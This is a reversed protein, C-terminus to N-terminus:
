KRRNWQPTILVAPSLSTIGGERRVRELIKM